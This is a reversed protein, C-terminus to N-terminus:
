CSGVRRCSPRYRGGDVASLRFAAVRHCDLFALTM